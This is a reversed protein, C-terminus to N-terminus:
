KHVVIGSSNYGYVKWDNDFVDFVDKGNYKYM